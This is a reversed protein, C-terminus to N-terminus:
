QRTVLDCGIGDLICIVLRLALFRGILGFTVAFCVFSFGFRIGVRASCHLALHEVVGDGVNAPECLAM